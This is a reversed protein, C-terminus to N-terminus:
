GPEKQGLIADAMDPYLKRICDPCIGHSFRADTHHQIYSEVHNWYGTDDRIKKCSACMPLLGTLTKVKQLAEQLEEIVQQRAAEAQKRRTIDTGYFNAYRAEAVAVGVFAFVRGAVQVEFEEKAGSAFVANLRTRWEGQVLDGVGQGSERLILAAAQNHYIIQGNEALRIIPTPSEAPIRALVQNERLATQLERNAALIKNKLEVTDRMVALCDACSGLLIGLLSFSSEQGGTRDSRLVGCFMGITHTAVGLAHLVGQSLGDPPKFFVPGGHRLAWAFKGARIEAQVWQEMSARAELPACAALEFEFTAPNILFFASAQFLGLGAVYLRTVELIDEANETEKLDRQFHQLAAFLGPLEQRGLAHLKDMGIKFFEPYLSRDASTM